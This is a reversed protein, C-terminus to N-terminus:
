KEQIEKMYEFVEEKSLYGRPESDVESCWAEYTDKGNSYFVKGLVVSLRFGNDFVVVAQKSGRLMDFAKAKMEEESIGAILSHVKFELDKFEIM